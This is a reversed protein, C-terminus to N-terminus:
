TNKRSKTCFSKGLMGGCRTVCIIEPMSTMMYSGSSSSFFSARLATSSPTSGTTVKLGSQVTTSAASFFSGLPTSHSVESFRARSGQNLMEVPVPQNWWSREHFSWIFTGSDPM